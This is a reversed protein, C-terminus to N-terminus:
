GRHDHGHSGLRMPRGKAGSIRLFRRFTEASLRMSHELHRDTDERIREPCFKGGSSEFIERNEPMELWDDVIPRNVELHFQLGYANKGYRFAQGACLDSSALHEAGSPVEFIDGHSQFVKESAGFHGIVPDAAGAPTLRVDYWGMERDTHKRVSAGLVSALIQSGLCIGLIPLERKLAEEILKLEVKLHGYSEAEYVGMYGGLLIVGDYRDLTPCADPAREFNVFRIRLGEQRLISEWTGLAEYSEHQIVMVRKM